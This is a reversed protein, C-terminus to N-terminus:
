PSGRLEFKLEYPADLGVVAESKPDTGAPLKRTLGVLTREGAKVPIKIEGSLEGKPVTRRTAPASGGLDDGITLAIDVGPPAAVHGVLFGAASPTISFWDKDEAGGLYGKVSNGAEVPTARDRWDNPEIEWGPTPPGWKVSLRYPDAVDEVLQAGQIWLQRVLVFAEAPGIMVPQLWEGGGTGRSDSKEVANGQADFLELVLDVNPLGEVRVSVVRAGKGSPVRFYDMDPQGGTQRRGIKGLVPVGLPVLTAETASNNPEREVSSAKERSRGFAWVGAAAGCLLFAPVILSTAIKKRRLSREFADFDQKRLRDGSSGSAAAIEVPDAESDDLDSESEAADLRDSMGRQKVSVTPAMSTSRRIKPRRGIESDGNDAQRLDQIAAELDRQVEAATAYRDDRAKAMARAVIADAAAPLNMGPARIGPPELPDTIHMALVGVPTAADFPPTGTLVRYLTAGLSYIDTRVDLVESRVQEPSMYYPTGIVQGRSTIEAGDNRERLKALGFDLVKAHAAGDRRSVVVINEPKLDRHIVGAEHADTLASCIQV